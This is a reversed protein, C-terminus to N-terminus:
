GQCCLLLYKFFFPLLTEATLFDRNRMLALALVMQRRIKPNITTSHKEVLKMMVHPIHQAATGYLPACQGIYTILDSLLRSEKSPDLEFVQLNSEFHRLQTLFDDRYAEPDRKTRSQLEVLTLSKANDLPM